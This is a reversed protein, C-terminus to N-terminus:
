FRIDGLVFFKVIFDMKPVNPLGILSYNVQLKNPGDLVLREIKADVESERSFHVTTTFKRKIEDVFKM